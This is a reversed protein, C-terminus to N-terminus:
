ESRLKRIPAHVGHFNEVHWGHCFRCEIVSYKGPYREPFKKMKSVAKCAARISAHRVKRKCFFEESTM